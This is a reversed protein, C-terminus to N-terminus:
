LTGLRMYASNGSGSQVPYILVANHSSFPSVDLM